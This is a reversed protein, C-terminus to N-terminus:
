SCPFTVFRVPVVPVARGELLKAAASFEWAAKLVVRM